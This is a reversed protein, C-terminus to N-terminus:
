THVLENFGLKTWVCRRGKTILESCLVLKSWCKNRNNKSCSQIKHLFIRSFSLFHIFSQHFRFCIFLSFRLCAFERKKNTFDSQWKHTKVSVICGNKGPWVIVMELELCWMQKLQLYDDLILDLWGIEMWDLWIDLSRSLLPALWRPLILDRSLFRRRPLRSRSAASRQLFCKRHSGPCTSAWHTTYFKLLFVVSACLIGIEVTKDRSLPNKKTSINSRTQWTQHKIFVVPNCYISYKELAQM